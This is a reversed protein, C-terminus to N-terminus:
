DHNRAEEIAPRASLAADALDEDTAIDPKLHNIAKKGELLDLVDQMAEAYTHASDSSHHTFRYKKAHTCLRTLNTDEITPETTLKNAVPVDDAWGLTRFYVPRRASIAAEIGRQMGPSIGLDGYIVTAEAAEIWALGAEIGRRQEAPVSDDLIGEQTYLLHSAIPAEGRLLSDKLAARAYRLNLAVNGAYPSELILRQAIAKNRPPENM